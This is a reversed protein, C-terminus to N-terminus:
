IKFLYKENKQIVAGKEGINLAKDGKYECLVKVNNELVVLVLHLPSCHGEPVSYLTTFSYVRGKNTIEFNKMKSGCKPCINRPPAISKGCVCKSLIIYDKNKM